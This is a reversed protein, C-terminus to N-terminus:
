QTSSMPEYFNLAQPNFFLNNAIIRTLYYVKLGVTRASAKPEVKRVKAALRNFIKRPLVRSVYSGHIMSLDIKSHGQGSTMIVQVRGINM